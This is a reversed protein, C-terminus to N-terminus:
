VNLQVHMQYWTNPFTLCAFGIELGNMVCENYMLYWLWVHLVVLDVVVVVMCWEGRGRESAKPKVGTRENERMCRRSRMAAAAGVKCAFDYEGGFSGSRVVGNSNNAAAASM